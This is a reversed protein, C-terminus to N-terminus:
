ILTESGLTWIPSVMTLREDLNCGIRKLTILRWLVPMLEAGRMIDKSCALLLSQPTATRLAALNDLLLNVEDPVLETREYLLLFNANSLYPTRIENETFISFRQWGRERSFARAAKFKPKLDKWEAFLDIRYKVEALMPPLQHGTVPDANFHILVDPTYTHTHGQPDIYPITLPQEEFGAFRQKDFVLLTYLDREM